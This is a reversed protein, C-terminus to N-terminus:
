VDNDSKINSMLVDIKLKTGRCFHESLAVKVDEEQKVHEPSQHITLFDLTYM